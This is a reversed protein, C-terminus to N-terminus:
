AKRIMLLYAYGDFLNEDLALGDQGAALTRLDREIEARPHVDFLRLWGLLLRRRWRPARQQDGFDVVALIGGPALQELARDVVPRWDPIMSLVYSFYIVDFRALGFATEPDFGQGGAQALRVRHALGARDLARAATDIMVGAVDVGHLRADPVMHGLKVLNRGTGCGMELVSAGPKIPLRTLLRDRGLLYFKRTLDYIHRQYRYMTDMRRAADEAVVMEVM